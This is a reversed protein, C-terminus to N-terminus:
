KGEPNTANILVASFFLWFSKYYLLEIMLIIDAFYKDVLGCFLLFM